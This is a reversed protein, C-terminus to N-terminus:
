HVRYTDDRNSRCRTLYNLVFENNLANCKERTVFGQALAMQNTDSFMFGIQVKSIYFQKIEPSLDNRESMMEKVLDAKCM